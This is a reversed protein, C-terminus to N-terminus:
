VQHFGTPSLVSVGATATFSSACIVSVVSMIKGAVVPAGIGFLVCCIVLIYMGGVMSWPVEKANEWITKDRPTGTFIVSYVKVFCMVALAGTLALALIAVPFLIMGTIGSKIAGTIMSQYTIWESVFGNLPPLASIAMAGILFAFATLPMKKSLGGLIEM